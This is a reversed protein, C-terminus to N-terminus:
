TGDGGEATANWRHRDRGASRVVPVASYGEFVRVTRTLVRLDHYFVAGRNVM